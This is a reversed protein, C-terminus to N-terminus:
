QQQVGAQKLFETVDARHKWVDAKLTEVHNDVFGVNVWNNDLLGPRTMLMITNDTADTPPKRYLYDAGDVESWSKIEKVPGPYSQTLWVHLPSQRWPNITGAGRPSAFRKLDSIENQLQSLRVPFTNHTDRYMLVGFGIQKINSLDNVARAKPGAAGIPPFVMGLGLVMLLLGIIWSWWTRVAAPVLLGLWLPLFFAANMGLVIFGLSCLVSLVGLLSLSEKRSIFAVLVGASFPLFLLGIVRPRGVFLFHWLGGNAVDVVAWALNLAFIGFLLSKQRGLWTLFTSQASSM